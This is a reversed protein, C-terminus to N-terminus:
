GVGLPRRADTGARTEGGADCETTSRGLVWTGSVDGGRRTWRIELTEGAYPASVWARTSDAVVDSTTMVADGNLQVRAVTRQADAALRDRPNTNEFRQQGCIEFRIWRWVSLGNMCRKVVPSLIHPYRFVTLLDNESRM